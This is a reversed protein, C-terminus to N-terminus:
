LYPKVLFCTLKLNYIMFQNSNIFKARYIGSAGNPIIPSLAPHGMLYPSIFLGNGFFFIILVIWSSGSRWFFDSPRINMVNTQKVSHHHSYIELSWHSVQAPLQNTYQVVTGLTCSNGNASERESSEPLSTQYFCTLFKQKGGESAAEQAKEGMIRLQADPIYQVFDM